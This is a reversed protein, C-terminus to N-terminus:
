IQCFKYMIKCNSVLVEENNLMLICRALYYTKIDDVPIHPKSTQFKMILVLRFSLTYSMQITTLILNKVMQRLVIKKTKCIM